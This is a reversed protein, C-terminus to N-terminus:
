RTAIKDDVKRNRGTRPGTEGRTGTINIYVTSGMQRKSRLGTSICIYYRFASTAKNGSIHQYSWLTNDINDRRYLVPTIIVFLVLVAIVTGLVYPTDSLKESFNLFVSQFDIMDPPIMRVGATFTGFFYSTLTIESTRGGTLQVGNTTRWEQSTRDIVQPSARNIRIKPADRHQPITNDQCQVTIVVPAQHIPLQIVGGIFSFMLSYPRYQTVSLMKNTHLYFDYYTDTPSTTGYKGYTRCSGMMSINVYVIAPSNNFFGGPIVAMYQTGNLLMDITNNTNFATAPLPLGILFKIDPIENGDEDFAFSTM